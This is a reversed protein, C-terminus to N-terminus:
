GFGGESSGLGLGEGVHEAGDRLRGAELQDAQDLRCPVALGAYAVQRSRQPQALRRDAMVELHEAVGPEHGPGPAARPGVVTQHRLSEGGDSLKEDSRGGGPPPPLWFRPRLQAVEAQPM